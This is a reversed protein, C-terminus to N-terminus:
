GLPNIPDWRSRSTSTLLSDCTVQCACLVQVVCLLVSNSIMGPWGCRLGEAFFYLDEFFSKPARYATEHTRFAHEGEGVRCQRKSYYYLALVTGAAAFTTTAM